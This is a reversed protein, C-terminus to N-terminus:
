LCDPERIVDNRLPKLLLASFYCFGVTFALKQGRNVLKDDSAYFTFTQMVNAGARLFERHLQRVSVCVSFTWIRMLLHCMQLCLLFSYKALSTKFSMVYNITQCISVVPPCKDLSIADLSFSRLPFMERGLEEAQM